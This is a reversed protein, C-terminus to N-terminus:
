RIDRTIWGGGLVREGAYIVCAQGPAVAKEESLFKVTMKDDGLKSIEAHRPPRTSRIKVAVELKENDKIEDALWNID